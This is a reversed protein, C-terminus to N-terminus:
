AGASLGLLRQTNEGAILAKERDSLPLARLIELESQANSWPSDSGFLIKDAGHAKVIRLFREGSFYEFGMSTELYIDGGVLHKEVDDWQAHGGLHAAIIKAGPLERLLNAFRRPDSRFPPRYAPDYGAHFLLVFGRSAAYDYIRLMEPADLIFEQYEPHFKLGKLGLEAAFDIDGKVDASAPHVGGFPIIRESANEAAWRCIKRNNAPKTVVPMLASKDIGWRDMNSILGGITGDSVPRYVKGCEEYLSAIARPAVADPFAHTHMDIVM